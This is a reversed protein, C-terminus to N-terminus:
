DKWLTLKVRVSDGGEKTEPEKPKAGGRTIALGSHEHAAEIAMDM